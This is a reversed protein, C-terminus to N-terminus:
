ETFEASKGEFLMNTELSLALIMNNRSKSKM